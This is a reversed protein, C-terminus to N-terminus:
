GRDLLARQWAGPTFGFRRVFVRTLHSQDAFGAVAASAALGTGAGILRRAREARLQQLWEHPPLGYRRQFRRLLQWRSLGLDAALAVLSPAPQADDALRECVRELDRDAERPPPAGAHRTLLQVAVQVLVEECALADASGRGARWRDLRTFLTQLLARLTDDRLVPRALLPEQPPAGGAEGALRMMVEPELYLMRWRRAPGGLPRGDHVDGPNTTILDGAHADVRGRPSASNQAGAEIVGCAYSDHAHRGYHHASEIHTGHVGAWPTAFVRCRHLPAASAPM